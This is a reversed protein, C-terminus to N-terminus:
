LRRHDCRAVRRDARNNDGAETFTGNLAQEARYTEGEPHNVETGLVGDVREQDPDNGPPSADTQIQDQIHAGAM